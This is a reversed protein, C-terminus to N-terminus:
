RQGDYDTHRGGGVLSWTDTCRNVAGTGAVQICVHGCRDGNTKVDIYKYEQWTRRHM